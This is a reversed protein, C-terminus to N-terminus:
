ETEEASFNNQGGFAKKLTFFFTSGNNLQSEAWIEGDNKDIFEKCLLLGLGTGMEGETGACRVKQDIRFLKDLHEQEMGIGSDKISVEVMDAPAEKANITITGGSHTFKVANSLLNRIVTTLMKEDAFIRIDEPMESIIKIKKQSARQYITQVCQLTIDLLNHEAPAFSAAGKQMEAWELLNELLKYLNVASKDLESYIQTLEALTFQSIDQTLAKTMGLFGQFPSRLDHAIISFFKDKESNTKELKMKIQTLEKVLANKQELNANIINNSIQLSENLKKIAEENQKRKSIDRIIFVIGTPIDNPGLIFEANAEIDIISGDARIAKYEGPGTFVGSFMLEINKIARNKDQEAIFEIVNHGVLKDLSDYRFMAVGRPSIMRIQGELDTITVDDPSASLFSKYFAESEQLATEALKRQNIDYILSLVAEKGEWHIKASNIEVWIIENDKRLMRFQFRNEIPEGAIRKKYRNDIFNRDEPYVFDTFPRSLLETLPYGTLSEAKPNCFKIYGECLVAITEIANDVLLKYKEESEKLLEETRKTETLDHLVNIIHATGNLIIYKASLLAPFINGNKRHFLIEYNEYSGTKGLIDTFIKRQEPEAWLNIELTSKNQVEEQTYGTIGVFQNNIYELCGDQFRTIYIADSSAAFIKSFLEEDEKLKDKNKEYFDKLRSNEQEYKQLLELIEERSKNENEM